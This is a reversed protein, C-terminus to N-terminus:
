KVMQYQKKFGSLWGHSNKYIINEFQRNNIIENV